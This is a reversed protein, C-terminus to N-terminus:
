FLVEKDQRLYEGYKGNRTNYSLKGTGTYGNKYQFRIKQVHIGVYDEDEDKHRHVTICNDAKNYFNASGSIDYPTPVVVKRNNDSEMKRPHAVVWIHIEHIKAFTNLSALVRSVYNTENESDRFKHEVTNWPDIILGNLGYRFNLIRAQDLISEITVSDEQTGIFKVHDNLIGMANRAMEEDIRDDGWFPKGTFKGVLKLLHHKVPFNEASFIGFKWGYDQVMNIMLADMWESKGMNPVGTIITVESPSVRYYEDLGSWGTSLGKQDPTNLLDIADDMVDSVLVVGDIPYPHADTIIETIKDEGYKVLVDNMDKCDTPYTVRYCKERGIRRSLEDRMAHGAPDDDMALIVTTANMLSEEASLLYSFKRDSPNSNPAIAGDPVSVVNSYGAQVISLADMEGETIIIANMGVMHDFRYFCKEANKSQRYKKDATRSKVNVVEGGKYFPFQIWGNDYGIGADSVVAASIGRNQFWKIVTTPLDTLPEPPKEIPPSIVGKKNLSGRWSCNHCNWVGEDINVSLCPDNKKKRTHSCQPCITKEQGSTNKLYIGHTEFTM